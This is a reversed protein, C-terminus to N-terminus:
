LARITICGWVYTTKLTIVINNLWIRDFNKSYPIIIIFIVLYIHYITYLWFFLISDKLHIYLETSKEEKMTDCNKRQSIYTTCTPYKCIMMWPPTDSDISQSLLLSFLTMLIHPLACRNKAALSFSYLLAHMPQAWSSRVGLSLKKKSFRLSKPKPLCIPGFIKPANPTNEASKDAGM